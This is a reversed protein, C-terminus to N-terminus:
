RFSMHNKLLLNDILDKILYHHTDLKRIVGEMEHFNLKLNPINSNAYQEITKPLYILHFIYLLFAFSKLRGHFFLDNIPLDCIEKTRSGNTFTVSELNYCHEFCSPANIEQLQQNNLCSFSRLSQPLSGNIIPQNHFISLTLSTLTNPLINPKLQHNYYGGLDLSLLGTPLVDCMIEQNFYMGLTLSTLTKPLAGVQLTFEDKTILTKLNPPLMGPEIAHSYGHFELSTLSAPLVGPLIPHEFFDMNLSELNPPLDGPHLPHRYCGGISKISSPLAGSIIQEGSDMDSGLWLEELAAPLTGPTLPHNYVGLILIRTSPPLSGPQFPQNYVGNLNIDTINDPIDGPQIPLDYSSHTFDLKSVHSPITLTSLPMNFSKEFM